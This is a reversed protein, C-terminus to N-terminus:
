WIRCDMEAVANVETSRGERGQDGLVATGGERSSRLTGARGRCTGSPRERLSFKRMLHSSWRYYVPLECTLCFLSLSYRDREGGM